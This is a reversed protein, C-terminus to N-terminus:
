TVTYISRKRVTLVGSELKYKRFLSGLFNCKKLNFKAILYNLESEETILAAHEIGEEPTITAVKKLKM